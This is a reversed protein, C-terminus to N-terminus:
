EEYPPPPSDGRPPSGSSSSGRGGRGRRTGEKSLRKLKRVVERDLGLDTLRGAVDLQYMVEGLSAYQVVRFDDPSGAMRAAVKRVRALLPADIHGSRLTDQLRGLMDDMGMSEMIVSARQRYADILDIDLGALLAGERAYWSLSIWRQLRQMGYCHVAWLSVQHGLQLFKFYSEQSLHATWIQKELTGITDDFAVNKTHASGFDTHDGNLRQRLELSRRLLATFEDESLNKTASM